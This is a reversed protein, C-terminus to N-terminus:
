KCYIKSFLKVLHMKHLIFFTHVIFHVNSLEGKPKFLLYKNKKYNPINKKLWDFFLKYQNMFDESSAGKGSYIMYTVIYRLLFYQNLEVNDVNKVNALDLFEITPVNKKFGVHDTNSFSNTNYFYNYGIYDITKVNAKSNFCDINFLLDECYNLMNYRINNKELFSTRYIKGWTATVVYKAFEGNNLKREYSFKKGDSNVKRFGSMVIDYKGNEIENYLVEVFDKEMYDDADIFMTYKNDVYDMGKNRTPSPGKQKEELVKLFSYKKELRKLVKLTDDTSNNNICYVNFDKFTQEDLSVILREIFQDCNYCPIVIGIKKKVM